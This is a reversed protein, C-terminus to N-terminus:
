RRSSVGSAGFSSRAAAHRELREYYKGILYGIPGFKRRLIKLIATSYIDQQWFICRRNANLCSRLVIRLPDIPLNGALVIEPAFEAIRQALRRFRKGKAAHEGM